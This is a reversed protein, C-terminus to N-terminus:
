SILWVVLLAVKAQCTSSQIDGQVTQNVQVAKSWCITENTPIEASRTINAFFCTCVKNLTAVQSSINAQETRKQLFWNPWRAKRREPLYIQWATMSNNVSSCRPFISLFCSLSTCIAQCNKSQLLRVRCGREVFYCDRTTKPRPEAKSYCNNCRTDILQAQKVQHFISKCAPTEKGFVPFGTSAHSTGTWVPVLPSRSLVFRRVRSNLPEKELTQRKTEVERTIIQYSSSKNITKWRLFLKKQLRLTSKVANWHSRHWYTRSLPTAINPRTMQM